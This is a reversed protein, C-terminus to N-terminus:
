VSRQLAAMMALQEEPATEMAWFIHDAGAARAHELDDRVQEVSGTLPQREDLPSPTVAGNVRVVVPLSQPDHGAKEAAKRFLTISGELMEWTMMITNLGVGLRAAREIAPPAMSGALLAVGDPGIPKPGTRSPPGIRYFRGDHEVPDPGWVARMATIHDEMRAGRQTTPVGASEYEAVMWGVGIGALLRGGSLRDVTALRRALVIPSHLVADLVSTGLTIRSTRAAVYALTELPDYVSGYGEPLPVPDGGGIPVAGDVPSMLREFSWVSALGIREAEEAFAGISEPSAESGATRLQVGLKM